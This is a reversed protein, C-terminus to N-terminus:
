RKRVSEWRQAVGLRPRVSRGQDVVTNSLWTGLLRVLRDDALHERLMAMLLSHDVSDFFSSIDAIVAWGEKMQEATAM